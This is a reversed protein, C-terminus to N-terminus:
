PEAAVTGMNYHKMVPIGFMGTAFTYTIHGGYIQSKDAFLRIGSYADYAGGELYIITSKVYSGRGGKRAIYESGREFAYTENRANFSFTFNLILLLHVLSPGTAVAHYWSDSRSRKWKHRCLQFTIIVFAVLVSWLVTLPILTRFDILFICLINFITFWFIRFPRLTYLDRFTLQEDSNRKM